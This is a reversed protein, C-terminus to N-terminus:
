VTETIGSEKVENSTIAAIKYMFCLELGYQGYSIGIWANGLAWQRGKWTQETIMIGEEDMNFNSANNYDAGLLRVLHNVLSEVETFFFYSNYGTPLMRFTYAGINDPLVETVAHNFNHVSTPKIGCARNYGEEKYNGEAIAENTAQVLNGILQGPAIDISPILSNFVDLFEQPKFIKTPIKENSYVAKAKEITHKDNTIFIDCHAAYFSHQADNNLNEYTNKKSLKEPHFGFIDLQSYLMLFKDFKENNSKTSSNNNADNVHQSFSKGLHTTPLHSDLNYIANSGWNSIISPDIGLGDKLVNRLAKYAEPDKNMKDFFDGFSSIWDLLSTPESPLPFDLGLKKFGDVSEAPFQIKTDALKNLQEKWLEKIPGDDFEETIKRIDMMESLSKGKDDKVSEFYDQPTQIVGTVSDGKWYQVILHNRTVESITQLDKQVFNNKIESNDWGKLLDDIHAPSYPILFYNRYEKLKEAITIYPEQIPKKLNSLVNWDLYIRIM